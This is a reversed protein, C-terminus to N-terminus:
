SRGQSQIKGQLEVVLREAQRFQAATMASRLRERHQRLDEQMSVEGAAAAVSFWAYAQVHDEAVGQGTEYMAGLNHQAGAHGRSAALRYWKVAEAKDPVVGIGGQDYIVGLNFQASRQAGQAGSQALDGQEAARRYWRVAEADNEPVGGEGNDYMAGLLVQALVVGREASERLREADIGGAGGGCAAAIALLVCALPYPPRRM